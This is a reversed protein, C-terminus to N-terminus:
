TYNRYFIGSIFPLVRKLSLGFIKRRKMEFSQGHCSMKKKICIDTLWFSYSECQLLMPYHFKKKLVMSLLKNSCYKVYLKAEFTGHHISLINISRVLNNGMSDSWFLIIVIIQPGDIFWEKLGYIWITEVFIVKILIIILWLNNLCFFFFLCRFLINNLALSLFRNQCFDSDLVYIEIVIVWLHNWYREM